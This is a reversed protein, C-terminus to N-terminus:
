VGDRPKNIRVYDTDQVPESECEIEITTVPWDPAKEPLGSLKTQFDDQSVTVSGGNKLM